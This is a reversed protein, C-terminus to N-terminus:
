ANPGGRTWKTRPRELLRGDLRLDVHENFFAVLGRLRPAEPLPTEYSWALHEHRRGDLEFAWYTARGKYPCLTHFGAVRGLPVRIDARPLYFRTPLLTEWVFLPQESRALLHGDLSVEVTRSSPAVDVRRYPDRPHALLEEDEEYWADVADWPVILHEGHADVAESAAHLSADVHERPFAYVPTAREPRWVLLASESDVVTRDGVRGRVRRPSPEYTLERVAHRRRLAPRADRGASTGAEETRRPSAM